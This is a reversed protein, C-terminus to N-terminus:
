VQDGGKQSRGTERGGTEVGNGSPTRAEAGRSQVKKELPAEGFNKKGAGNLQHRCKFIVDNKDREGGRHSLNKQVDAHPGEAIGRGKKKTPALLPVNL